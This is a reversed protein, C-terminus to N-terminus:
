IPGALPATVTEHVKAEGHRESEIHEIGYRDRLLQALELLDAKRLPAAVGNLMGRLFARGGGLLQAVAVTAFRDRAKYSKGPEYRRLIVTIEEAHWTMPETRQL